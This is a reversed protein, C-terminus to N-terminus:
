VIRKTPLTLHTYSVPSICYGHIITSKVGKEALLKKLVACHHVVSGSIKHLKMRMAIRKLDM